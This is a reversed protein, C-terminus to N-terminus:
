VTMCNIKYYDQIFFKSERGGEGLSLLYVNLEHKYVSKSRNIINM